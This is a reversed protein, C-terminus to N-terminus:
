CLLSKEARQERCTGPMNNCSDWVHPCFWSFAAKEFLINKGWGFFFFFFYDVPRVEWGYQCISLLGRAPVMEAMEFASRHVRWNIVLALNWQQSPHCCRHSGATIARRPASDPLLCAMGRGWPAARGLLQWFGKRM